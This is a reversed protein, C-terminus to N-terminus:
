EIWSSIAVSLGAKGGERGLVWGVGVVVATVTAAAAAAGLYGGRVGDGFLEM